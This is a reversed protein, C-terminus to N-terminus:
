RKQISWMGRQRVFQLRRLIKIPWSKEAEEGLKHRATYIWEDLYIWLWLLIFWASIVAARLLSLISFWRCVSWVSVWHVAVLQEVALEVQM